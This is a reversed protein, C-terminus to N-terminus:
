FNSHIRAWCSLKTEVVCDPLLLSHFACSWYTYNSHTACSRFRYPLPLVIRHSAFVISLHFAFHVSVASKKLVCSFYFFESLLIRQLTPQLTIDVKSDETCDKRHCVVENYCVHSSHRNTPQTDVLRYLLIQKRMLSWSHDTSRGTPNAKMSCQLVHSQYVDSLAVDSCHFCTCPSLVFWQMTSTQQMLKEAIHSWLCEGGTSVASTHKGDPYLYVGAGARSIKLILKLM